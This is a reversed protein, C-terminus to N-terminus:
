IKVAGAPAVGLSPQPSSSSSSSTATPRADSKSSTSSVSPVSAPGKSKDYFVNASVIERETKSKSEFLALM